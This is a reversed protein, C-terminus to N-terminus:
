AVDAARAASSGDRRLQLWYLAVGAVILVVGLPMLVAAPGIGETFVPRVVPPPHPSLLETVVHLLFGTDALILTAWASLWAARGRTAWARWVAVLALPTALMALELLGFNRFYGVISLIANSPTNFNALSSTGAPIPHLIFSLASVQLPYVGPEIQCLRQVEVRTLPVLPRGCDVVVMPLAVVSTIWVVAGITVLIAAIPLKRARKPGDNEARAASWSGSRLLLSIKVSWV